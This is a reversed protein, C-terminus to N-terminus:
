FFAESSILKERKRLASEFMLQIGVEKRKDAQMLGARKRANLLALLCSHFIHPNRQALTSLALDLGGLTKYSSRKLSCTTPGGM